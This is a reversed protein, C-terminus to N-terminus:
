LGSIRAKYERRPSSFWGYLTLLTTHSQRDHSQRLQLGTQASWSWSDATKGDRLMTYLMLNRDLSVTFETQKLFRWRQQYDADRHKITIPQHGPSAVVQGILPRGLGTRIGPVPPLCCKTKEEMDLAAEYQSPHRSPQRSRKLTPFRFDPLCCGLVQVSCLPSFLGPSCKTRALSSSVSPPSNTLIYLTLLPSRPRPPATWRNAPLLPSTPSSEHYRYWKTCRPFM